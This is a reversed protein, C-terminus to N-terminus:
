IIGALADFIGQVDLRGYGWEPNPYNRYNDRQAGLELLSKVDSTNTVTDPFMRFRWELLLAAAGAVHATAISSGSKLTFENHSGGARPGFIDVGPAALEPKVKGDAAFGRGSDIWISNNRHNYTGVSIPGSVSGPQTLTIYPSSNLFYTEGGLFQRIPLWINYYGTLRNTDYVGIRWIGPSPNIFRMSILQGGGVTEVLRYTVEIITPDYVFEIRRNVRIASQIRDVREGFPSTIEVSFVDPRSGWLEMIFGREGEGVRLEVLQYGNEATIEGLFHSRTNGENGMPVVTVIGPEESVTNLLNGLPTGSTHSGYSTGLGMYIVMPKDFFRAKEMLYRIALMIDSESYALAGEPILFYDRLSEKTKKLKVVVMQADPAAGVFESNIRSGAVIGAMFTGHGGSEDQEPVIQLPNESQLAEDIQGADYESGYDFGEPPIGDQGSQDWMSLIRTRRYPDLFVEHQYDIGTDIIGVLVDKGTLNLRNRNQVDVIGSEIMSSQDMLGYLKPIPYYGLEGYNLKGVMNMPVYIIAWTSNVYQVCAEGYLEQIAPADRYRIILDVYEESIIKERCGINNDM